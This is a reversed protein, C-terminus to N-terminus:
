FTSKEEGKKEKKFPRPRNKTEAEWKWKKGWYREKGEM